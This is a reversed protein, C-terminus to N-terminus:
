RTVTIRLQRDVYAPPPPLPGPAIPCTANNCGTSTIAFVTIATGAENHPTSTCAITANLGTLGGAFAVTRADIAACGAGGTRLVHFAAWELGGRAAHYARVGQVDLASGAQQTTSIVVLSTGLIALVSVLGIVVVMAFGQSRRPSM